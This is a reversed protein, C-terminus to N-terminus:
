DFTSVKVFVLIQKILHLTIVSKLGLLDQKCVHIAIVITVQETKLIYTYM